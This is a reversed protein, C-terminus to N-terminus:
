RRDTEKASEKIIRATEKQSEVLEEQKKGVEQLIAWVTEFNPHKIHSAFSTQSAIGM